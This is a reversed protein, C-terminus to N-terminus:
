LTVRVLSNADVTIEYIGNPDDGDLFDERIKDDGMVDVAAKTNMLGWGYSYDPGTNGLDDATHIILAKITSARMAQEPFLWSYYDLLLMALGSANPAAMSTGSRTAYDSNHDDDCSYLSTGNAVIDPKIRGDDTPGWGSFSSMTADGIDRIGSTEADYVAGVTMINKANGYTTITDFGGDDWGDDNPDTSSDYSKTQWGGDYYEFTVGEAPADDNRDNGSSKFPLYYPANYCVEDWSRATSNYQGFDDSEPYGWEGHWRKPSDNDWGVVSGYSHNSIQVTNPEGPYSMARDAMESEDSNWDYSDINVSPAMGMARAVVGAAGITGGVHTAHYNTSSGDKVTVRSGFEQHTSLVAGGDWICETLNVGNADYPGTNRVLDAATSIAADDNDTCYYVPRGEELYMLEVVRKGNDIRVPYGRQAAWEKAEQKAIRQKEARRSVYDRRFQPKSFNDRSKGKAAASGVSGFLLASAILYTISLTRVMEMM